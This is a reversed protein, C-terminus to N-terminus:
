RPTYGLREAAEAQMKLAEEYTKISGVYHNGIHVQYVHRRPHIGKGPTYRKIRKRQAKVSQLFEDQTGDCVAQCYNVRLQEAEEYTPVRALYKQGVKVQWMQSNECWQICGAQLSQIRKQFRRAVTEKRQQAKRKEKLFHQEKVLSDVTGNLVAQYYQIQLQQAAKKTPLAGFYYDDVRLLWSKKQKYICGLKGVMLRYTRQDRYIKHHADDWRYGAPGEGGDTLNCLPGENKDRRGISVIFFREWFFAEEESLEELLKRYTPQRKERLMKRLKQYFMYDFAYLQNPQLHASIRDRSGKGIYIPTEGDFYCYM